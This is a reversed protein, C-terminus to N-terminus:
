ETTRATPAAQDAARHAQALCRRATATVLHTADLDRHPLQTNALLGTGDATRIVLWPHNRPWRDVGLGHLLERALHEWATDTLPAAARDATVHLVAIPGPATHPATTPPTCGLAADIM